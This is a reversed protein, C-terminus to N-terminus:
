ARRIVYLFKVRFSPGLGFVAFGRQNFGDFHHDLFIPWGNFFRFVRDPGLRPQIQMLALGPPPASNRGNAGLGGTEGSYHRTKPRQVRKRGRLSASIRPLRLPLFLHRAFRSIVEMIVCINGLRRLM